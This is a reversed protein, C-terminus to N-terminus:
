RQSIMCTGRASVAFLSFTTGRAHILSQRKYVDAYQCLALFLRDLSDDRDIHDVSIQRQKAGMEHLADHRSRPDNHPRFARCHRVAHFPDVSRLIGLTPAVRYWARHAVLHTYSVATRTLTKGSKRSRRQSTVPPRGSDPATTRESYTTILRRLSASSAASM